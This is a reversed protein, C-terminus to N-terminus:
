VASLSGLKSYIPIANNAAIPSILQSAMCGQRPTFGTKHGYVRFGVEANPPIMQLTEKLTSVAIDLKTRGGIKENMSNSLDLIFLIKEKSSVTEAPKYKYTDPTSYSFNSFNYNQQAYAIGSTILLIFIFYFFLKKM